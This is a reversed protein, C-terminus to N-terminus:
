SQFDRAKEGARPRTPSLAAPLACALVLTVAAALCAIVFVLHLSSAIADSLHLLKATGSQPAVRSEAAPEGSRQGSTEGASLQDLLACVLL